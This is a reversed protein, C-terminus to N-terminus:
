QAGDPHQHIGCELRAGGWRGSRADGPNTPRTTCPECGVSTYGETYLPLEPLEHIHAYAAIDSATWDFLPSVKRLIQGSPLSAPADGALQARSPSQERRLGAFWTDYRGLADFLPGVKHLQCCAKTDTAWLGPRPAQAQIVHLNLDWGRALSTAFETVAAFHHHTEIFLVPIQPARQRLLHLLVVCEAQFSSTVCPREARALATAILLEASRM